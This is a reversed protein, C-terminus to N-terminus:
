KYMVLMFNITQPQLLKFVPATLLYTKQRTFILTKIKVGEVKSFGNRDTLFKNFSINKFLM